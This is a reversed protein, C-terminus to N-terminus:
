FMLDWESLEEDEELEKMEEEDVDPYEEIDEEESYTPKVM